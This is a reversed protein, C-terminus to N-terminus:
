LDEESDVLRRRVEAIEVEVEYVTAGQHADKKEFAEGPDDFWEEDDNIITVWRFYRDPYRTAGAM